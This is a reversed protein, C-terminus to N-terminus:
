GAPEEGFEAMEWLRQWLVKPDDLDGSTVEAKLQEYAQQQTTLGAAQTLVGATAASDQREALSTDTMVQQLDAAPVSHIGFHIMIMALKANIDALAAAIAGLDTIVGAPDPVASLHRPQQSGKFEEVAAYWREKGGNEWTPRDHDKLWKMISEPSSMRPRKGEFSAWWRAAEGVADERSGQDNLWSAYTGMIMEREGGSSIGRAILGTIV